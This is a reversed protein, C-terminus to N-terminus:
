TIKAEAADRRQTRMVCHGTVRHWSDQRLERTHAVVMTSEACMQVQVEAKSKQPKRLKCKHKNCNASDREHVQDEGDRCTSTSTRGSALRPIGMLNRALVPM